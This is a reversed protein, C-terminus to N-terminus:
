RILPNPQAEAIRTLVASDRHAFPEASGDIVLTTTQAYSLSNASLATFSIEWASTHFHEYLWPNTLIGSAPSGVEARLTFTRAEPEVHGMAMAVQGRPIALTMYVREAAPEWLVYGVQDHFTLAEDSRNVHQHYRLGYILQPGNVQRDIPEFVWEELYETIEPGQAKPSVDRGREGRWSGALAQLPGLHAWTDDSGDAETYIDASYAAM